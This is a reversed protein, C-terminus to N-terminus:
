PREVEETEHTSMGALGGAGTGRNEASRDLEETLRLLYAVLHEMDPFGRREASSAAQLSARWCARDGERWMRLIFAAYRTSRTSDM